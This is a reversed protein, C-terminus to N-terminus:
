IIGEEQMIRLVEYYASEGEHTLQGSANFIMFHPVSRIKYQQILPSTWDIGKVGKRNIDVKLVVIGKQKEDLQKLVPAFKRCPPCYESYFDFINIKGPQLYDQINIEEGPKDENVVRAAIESIGDTGPNAMPATFPIILLAIALLMGMMQPLRKYAISRSVIGPHQQEEAKEGEGLLSSSEPHRYLTKNQFKKFM